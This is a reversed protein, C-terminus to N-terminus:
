VNLKEDEEGSGDFVPDGLVAEYFDGLAMAELKFNKPSIKKEKVSEVLASAQEKYCSEAFKITDDRLAAFGQLIEASYKEREAPKKLIHDAVRIANIIADEAIVIDKKQFPKITLPSKGKRDCWSAIASLEYVQREGRIRVPTDPFMGSIACVYDRGIRDGVIKDLESRAKEKLGDRYVKYMKSDLSSTQAVGALFGVAAGIAMGPAVGAPGAALVGIGAGYGAASSTTNIVSGTRYLIDWVNLGNLFSGYTLEKGKNPVYHNKQVLLVDDIRQEIAM